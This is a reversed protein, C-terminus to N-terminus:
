LANVQESEQHLASKRFATPLLASAYMVMTIPMLDEPTLAGINKEWMAMIQPVRALLYENHGYCQIGMLAGFERFALRHGLARETYRVESFIRSLSRLCSQAMDQAWAETRACWPVMWLAMGLDLTDSSEFQARRLNMLRKYDSIEEDLTPGENATAQLLRFIIYGTDADLHGQSAVLPRSMDTSIKWVMHPNSTARHLFFHPHIAKALAIAQDNYARDEAAVSLRNLAFMWLTLYHHYQGDGDPGEADTKGIRLGGGLPNQDTAGPLRSTGDRTWGLVDHVTQTLRKALVLFRGQDTEKYLTLFNLVGFADTWLYRGRHGGSNPPPTWDTANEMGIRDFSGYVKQLAMRFKDLRTAM